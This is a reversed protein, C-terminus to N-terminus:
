LPVLEVVKPELEDFVDLEVIVSPEPDVEVKPTFPETIPQIEPEPEQEVNLERCNPEYSHVPPTYWTRFLDQLTFWHRCLRHNDTWWYYAEGDLKLRAYCYKKETTLSFYSFFDELDSEWAEYRYHDDFGRFLLVAEFMAREVYKDDCDTDMYKGCFYFGM